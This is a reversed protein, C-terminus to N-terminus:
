IKGTKGVLTKKETRVDLGPDWMANTEELRHYSRLKERDEM